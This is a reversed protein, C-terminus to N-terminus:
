KIRKFLVQPPNHQWLHGLLVQAPGWPVLLPAASENQKTPELPFFPAVLPRPPLVTPPCPIPVWARPVQDKM